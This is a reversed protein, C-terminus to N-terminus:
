IFDADNMTQFVNKIAYWNLSASINEGMGFYTQNYKKTESSLLLSRGGCKKSDM